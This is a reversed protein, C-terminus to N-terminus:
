QSVEQKLLNEMSTSIALAGRLYITVIAGNLINNPDFFEDRGLLKLLTLKGKNDFYLKLNRSALYTVIKDDPNRTIIYGELSQGKLLDLAGEIYERPEKYHNDLTYAEILYSFIGSLSIDDALSNNFYIIKNDRMTDIILITKLRKGEKVVYLGEDINFTVMGEDCFAKFSRLDSITEDRWKM